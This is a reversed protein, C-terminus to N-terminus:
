LILSTSPSAFAQELPSRQTKSTLYLVLSEYYNTDFDFDFIRLSVWQKSIEESVWKCGFICIRMELDSCSEIRFEM